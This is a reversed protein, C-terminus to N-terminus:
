AHLRILRYERRGDTLTETTGGGLFAWGEPCVIRAVINETRVRLRVEAGVRQWEVSVEGNPFRHSASVSGVEEFLDPAIRVHNCDEIQLGAVHRYLWGSLFGWFHHNLSLMRPNGDARAMEGERLRHFGEWLTTAGRNLHYAYSPFDPKTILRYALSGDGFESLVEFLVRGGLVGVRMGNPDELILRRLVAYADQREEQEFAGYYLAMAQATQTRCRVSCGDLLERRFNKRLRAGLECASQAEAIRGIWEFIQASKRCIDMGILTDTVELPTSFEWEGCTDAECWDGLGYALLGRENIRTVMYDLYRVLSDASDRCVDLEGTFCYIRYVLEPLVADWAPGNGWSFGWGATPVIGPLKGEENQAARIQVLWESLSGAADFNYLIQEASLVADGTWGNKERQPCDTPYYYFNSLDSRLTCDQLRGLVSDGCTFEGCRSLASHLVQFRLLDTTAQEADLGEVEVYRFGHYTFSPTYTEFGRGSCRYEDQQVYGERSREGFSINALDLRGDRVIEGHRLVIKQGARGRVKLTCVGANIEGFDYLYKGDCETVSVPLLTKESLIPEVTCLRPTGKPTPVSFANGWASDDYDTETWGILERTADYHEGCRYDDYTISSDATRFAGDAEFLVEGDVELAVALKPASRWEAKQFDWLTNDMSNLFGNGLLFAVANKGPKLLGSLDYRDYYRFDNPSYLYPALFGKTIEKGNIWIRYFGMGCVTIEARSPLAKLEFTRRLCPAPVHQEFTCFERSASIFRESFKM